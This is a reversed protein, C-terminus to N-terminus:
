AAQFKGIGWQHERWKKIKWDKKGRHTENHNNEIAMDEFESIKEETTDLRMRHVKLDWNKKWKQAKNPYKWIDEM